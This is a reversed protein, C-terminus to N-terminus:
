LLFNLTIFCSLHILFNLRKLEKAHAASYEKAIAVKNESNFTEDFPAKTFCANVYTLLEGTSPKLTSLFASSAAGFILAKEHPSLAGNQGGERMRMRADIGELLTKTAVMTELIRLLVTSQTDTANNDEDNIVSPSSANDLSRSVRSHSSRPSALASVRPPPTGSCSSGGVDVAPTSTQSRKGARPNAARGLNSARRKERRTMKIRQKSNLGLVFTLWM